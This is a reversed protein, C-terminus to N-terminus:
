IVEVLTLYPTPIFLSGAHLAYYYRHNMEIRIPSYVNIPGPNIILCSSYSCGPHIQQKNYVIQRSLVKSTYINVLTPQVQSCLQPNIKDSQFRSNNIILVLKGFITPVPQQTSYM